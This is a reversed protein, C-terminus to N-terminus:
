TCPGVQGPTTPRADWPKTATGTKKRWSCAVRTSGAACTRHKFIDLTGWLRERGLDNAQTVEFGVKRLVEAMLNADNKANKLKEVAQYQDNGIVLALRAAHAPFMSTALVLMALLWDGLRLQTFRVTTCM